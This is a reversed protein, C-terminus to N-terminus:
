NESIPSAPPPVQTSAHSLALKAKALEEELKINQKRLLARSLSEKILSPLILLLAIFLGTTIALFLILALSGELQWSFFSVTVIATNQLVFLVALVGLAIGLILFFIM